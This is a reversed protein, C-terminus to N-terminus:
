KFDHLWLIFAEWFSYCLPFCFGADFPVPNIFVPRTPYSTAMGYFETGSGLFHVKNKNKVTISFSSWVSIFLIDLLLCFVIFFVKGRGLVMWTWLKPGHLQRWASIEKWETRKHVTSWGTREGGAGKLQDWSELLACPEQNQPFGVRIPEGKMNGM